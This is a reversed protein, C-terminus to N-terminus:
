AAVLRVSMADGIDVTEAYGAPIYVCGDPVRPDIVVPLRVSAGDTQVEVSNCGDVVLREAQAANLYAAATRNDVTAQLAEARRVIADVAYLPVDSIRALGEVPRSGNPAYLQWQSVEAGTKIRAVDVEASVDAATVYDFDDVGLLNGLVRLIKWGPRGEGPAAVAAAATQVQGTCNVYTGATEVFTAIPLVVNAAEQGSRFASFSVVFDASQLAARAGRGDLCDLEPDIGFTIYAGLPQELMAAAHRGSVSAAVGNALRQPVAGAIWGAASNADPLVGLTAGSETALWQAIARLASFDAHQLATSGLLISAEAGHEALQGAIGASDSDSFEIEGSSVWAALERPLEIGQQVAFAAAVAALARPMADPAVIHRFALDFHFDYDQCNVAMVTAGARFANRIRLGLLPQDKRINSGVLLLAAQDDLTSMPQGLGPCLPAAADDRFDRQRLRHDINDSGLGRVLKQLLYFEELTATPSVLAGLQAPGRETLVTTLGQVAADLATQWDVEHWNDDRRVVPTTLRDSDNVATYSYRDRDALWCDNVQRNDRPLVRRVENRLSQVNLNAGVCDHPSIADANALEWARASFRYPKSTLAGVPCLDIVNGSLESDVSRGVFTGIHMHEGRGSAGLEMIGAVEQGFRVCRTCHICRTMETSILPGIDYDDVVRKNEAFRSVDKGYGMAQDQLPCEGGQDCIPCDLPHNILLFEMTGKQAEVAAASATSIKMGDAVPTACAPLPKPAKEVEVLCMRCNAAISLKEHYCFRPIYIGADDAAKIIMTGAAVDLTRGDIEITPM